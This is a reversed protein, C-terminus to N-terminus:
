DDDNGGVGSAPTAPVPEEPVVVEGPTSLDSRDARLSNKKPVEAIVREPLRFAFTFFLTTRSFDLENVMPNDSKEGIQKFYELRVGFTTGPTVAYSVGVDGRIVDFAGFDMGNVSDLIQTRAYGLSTAMVLRPQARKLDGNIDIPLSFTLLATDNQTNQAIFQNPAITRGVNLQFTGYDAAYAVLGNALPFFETKRTTDDPNFPDTGVPNVMIVGGSFNTSWRKDIDHRWQATLHPNIQRDLRNAGAGAIPPASRELHLLSVGADLAIANERWSRDLGFSAAIEETLTQNAIHDVPDAAGNDNTKNYRIAATETGRLNQTLQYGGSEAASAQQTDILAAPLVGVATQDPSTRTLLASVQGTSGDITTSFDSRPGPTYSSQWAAHYNLSPQDNHRLFQLAEVELVLQQVMRPTEYVMLVGPRITVEVDGEPNQDDPASLANDTAAVTGAATAHVSTNASAPHTTLVPALLLALLGARHM